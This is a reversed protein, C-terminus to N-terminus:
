SRPEVPKGDQWTTGDAWVEQKWIPVKKKFLDMIEITAEFSEKKKLRDMIEITAEFSEKRHTGVIQVLVSAEGVPVDGVSHVVSAEGVPVDGISHVV